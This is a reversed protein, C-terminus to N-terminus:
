CTDLHLQARQALGHNILALIMGASAKSKIGHVVLELAQISYIPIFSWLSCILSSLFCGVYHLSLSKGKTTTSKKKKKENTQDDMMKGDRGVVKVTNQEFSLSSETRQLRRFTMM